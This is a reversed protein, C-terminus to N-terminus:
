GGDQKLRLFIEKVSELILDDSTYGDLDELSAKRRYRVRLCVAVYSHIPTTLQRIYLGLIVTKTVYYAKEFGDVLLAEGSESIYEQDKPRKQIAFVFDKCGTLMKRMIMQVRMQELTVARPSELSHIEQMFEFGTAEWRPKTLNLQTQYSRLEVPLDELATPGQRNLLYLDESVSTYMHNLGNRSYRLEKLVADIFTCTKQEDDGESLIRDIYFRHRSVVLSLYWLLLSRLRSVEKKLGSSILCKRGYRLYELDKNFFVDPQITVHGPEGGLPLPKSVNYRLIADDVKDQSHKRLEEM